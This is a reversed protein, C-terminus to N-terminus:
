LGDNVFTSRVDSRHSCRTELTFAHRKVNHASFKRTRLSAPPRAPSECQGSVLPGVLQQRRSCTGPIFRRRPKTQATVSSGQLQQLGSKFTLGAFVVGCVPLHTGQDAGQGGGRDHVILNERSICSRGSLHTAVPRYRQGHTNHTLFFTWEM